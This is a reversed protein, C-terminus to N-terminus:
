TCIEKANRKVVLTGEPSGIARAVLPCKVTLLFFINGTANSLTEYNGQGKSIILDAGNFYDRFEQSCEDVLTGPADSGNTIVPVFECIGATKADELTADNIVPAGRVAVTVKTIPLAEILFRDFVIEGANDALYLIRNAQDAADFLETISGDLPLTWVSKMREALDEPALRSKSGADLLNGAIALRVVAERPNSHNRVQETLAPVLELALRNMRDKLQRYPDAQGTQERIHRQLRRAIHVPMVNWDSGAIDSLLARLIHERQLDGIACMELAESAQRVLCAICELATKM